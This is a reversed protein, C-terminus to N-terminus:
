FSFQHIKLKAGEASIPWLLFFSSEGYDCYVMQSAPKVGIRPSRGGAGGVMMAGGGGGEMMMILGGGQQQQQQHRRGGRGVQGISAYHESPNEYIDYQQQQQQQQVKLQQRPSSSSPPASSIAPPLDSTNVPM